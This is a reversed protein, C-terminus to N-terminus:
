KIVENTRNGDFLNPLLSERYTIFKTSIVFQQHGSLIYHMNTPICDDVLGDADVLTGKQM